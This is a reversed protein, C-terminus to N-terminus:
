VESEEFGATDDVSSRAWPAPPLHNPLQQQRIQTRAPTVARRELVASTPPNSGISSHRALFQDRRNQLASYEETSLTGTREKAERIARYEKYADHGTINSGSELTSHGLKTKVEHYARPIVQIEFIWGGEVTVLVQYDRYGSSDHADFDPAFRNKVRVVEYEKADEIRNIIKTMDMLRDVVFAGRAYDRIEDFANNRLLVKEM